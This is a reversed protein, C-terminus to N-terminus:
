VCINDGKYEFHMVHYLRGDVTFGNRTIGILEFGLDKLIKISAENVTVADAFLVKVKVEKLAYELVAKAAEKGYGNNWFRRILQYYFGRKEGDDDVTPIGIVGIVEKNKLVVFHGIHASKEENKLWIDIKDRVADVDSLKMANTYRIVEEDQWLELLQKAYKKELPVIELRKTELKM